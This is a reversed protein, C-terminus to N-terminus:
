GAQLLYQRVLPDNPDDSPQPVLIFTGSKDRKLHTARQVAEVTRQEEQYVNVTGPVRRTSSELVGLGM